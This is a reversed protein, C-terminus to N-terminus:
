KNLQYNNTQKDKAKQNYSGKGARSVFEGYNM